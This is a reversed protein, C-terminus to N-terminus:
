SVIADDGPTAPMPLPTIIAPRDDGFYTRRERRVMHEGLFVDCDLSYSGDSAPEPLPGHEKEFEARAKALRDLMPQTQANIASIADGTSTRRKLEEAERRNWEDTNRARMQPVTMGLESAHLSEEADELEHCARRFDDELKGYRARASKLRLKARLIRLTTKM